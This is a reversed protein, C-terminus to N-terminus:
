ELIGEITILQLEERSQLALALGTILV